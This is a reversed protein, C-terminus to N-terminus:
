GHRQRRKFAPLQKLISFGRRRVQPIPALLGEPRTVVIVMVILAFVTPIWGHVSQLMSPLAVGVAAGFLSGWITGLGGVFLMVFLLIITHLGFTEPSVFSITHAYLSGAVSAYGGSIVFAIVKYRRVNIGMAQATSEDAAISRLARGFRLKSLRWTTLIAVGTVGWVFLYNQVLSGLKYGAVGFPPIGAIGMFGNFFPSNVAIQYFGLGFAFTALALYHGRLRLTPYGIIVGFVASVVVGVVVGLLPPLGWQTTALASLYAGIGLFANHGFSIQGTLGVLVNLGLTVIAFIGIQTLLTLRYPSLVFAGLIIAAALVALPILFGWSWYPEPKVPRANVHEVEGSDQLDTNDRVNQPRQLIMNCKLM